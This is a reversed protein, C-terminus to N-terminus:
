YQNFQSAVPIKMYQQHSQLIPFGSQFVMQIWQFYIHSQLVILMLIYKYIRDYISIISHIDNINYIINIHYSM